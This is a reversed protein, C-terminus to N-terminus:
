ISWTHSTRALHFVNPDRQNVWYGIELDRPSRFVISSLFIFWYLSYLALQMDYYASM